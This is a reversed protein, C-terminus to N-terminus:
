DLDASPLTVLDVAVALLQEDQVRDIQWPHLEDHTFCAQNNEGQDGDHRQPDDVGAVQRRFRLDFPV